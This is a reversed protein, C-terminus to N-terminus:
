KAMETYSSTLSCGNHHLEGGIEDSNSTISFSLLFRIMFSRMRKTNNNSNNINKLNEATLINNFLYRDTMVSSFIPGRRQHYMGPVHTRDFVVILIVCFAGDSVDTSRVFAIM